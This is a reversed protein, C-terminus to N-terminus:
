ALMLVRRDGCRAPRRHGTGDRLGPGRGPGPRAPGAQDAGPQRPDQRHEGRHGARRRDRYEVPRPRHASARGSGQRDAPRRDAAGARRAPDVPHLPRDAAPHREPRHPRGRRGRVPDRHHAPRRTRGQAPLRQGRRPPGRLRVRRLRVHDLDAGQQPVRRPGQTDGRLRGSAADPYGDPRRRAAPIPGTGHGRDRQGGGRRGRHRARQGPDDPIRDQGAGPRRRDARLGTRGARTAHASRLVPPPHRRRVHQRPRVGDRRLRAM